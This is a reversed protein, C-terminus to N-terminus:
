RRQERPLSNRRMVYELGIANSRALLANLLAANVKADNSRLAEAFDLALKRYERALERERADTPRFRTRMTSFTTKMSRLIAQAKKRQAITFPRQFM